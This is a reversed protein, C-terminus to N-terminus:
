PLQRALVVLDDLASIPRFGNPQQTERKVGIAGSSLNGNCPQSATAYAALERVTTRTLSGRSEAVISRLRSYGKRSCDDHHLGKGQCVGSEAQFM